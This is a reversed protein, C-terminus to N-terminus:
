TSMENYILRESMLFIGELVKSACIHILSRIGFRHRVCEIVGEWGGGGLRRGKEM